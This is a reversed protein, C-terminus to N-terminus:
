QIGFYKLLFYAIIASGIVNLSNDILNNLRNGFWNLLKKGYSDYYYEKNISNIKRKSGKFILFYWLYFINIQEHYWSGFETDRIYLKSKKFIVIPCHFLNSEM